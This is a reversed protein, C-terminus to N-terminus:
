LSPILADYLMSEPALDDELGKEVNEKVAPANGILTDDYLHQLIEEHTM